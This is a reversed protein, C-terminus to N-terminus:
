LPRLHGRLEDSKALGTHKWAIRGGRDLVVVTPVAAIEGFPGSATMVSAEGLAVPFEVHLASAYAEVIPIEKRPHLAVLAYNVNAADNKAMAVLYDVQAQGVIDGTTVFVLLTPKGRHAASSVPREDLTDFAYSVPTDPLSEGPKDSVGVLPEAVKPGCGVIVLMAVSMVAGRVVRSAAVIGRVGM